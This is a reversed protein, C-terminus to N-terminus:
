ERYDVSALLSDPAIDFPAAWFLQRRDALPLGDLLKWENNALYKTVNKRLAVPLGVSLISSLVVDILFGLWSTIGFLKLATGIGLIIAVYRGMDATKLTSKLKVVGTSDIAPYFGMQLHATNSVEPAILAWGIPLRVGKFVEFDCYADVSIDLDIDLLIGGGAQDFSVKFNEFAVHAAARFGITGNNSARITVSPMVKVTLKEAFAKPIYLGAVGDGPHRKGFDRMPDLGDPLPGGITVAAIEDNVGASPSATNTITTHSVGLDPGDACDCHAQENITVTGTPIIGLATKGELIALKIAGGFDVAPFISSLPQEQRQGLAAAVAQSVVGYGIHGELHAAELQDIGSAALLTDADPTRSIDRAAEFYAGEIVLINNEARLRSRPDGIRLRVQSIIATP